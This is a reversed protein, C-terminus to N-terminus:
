VRRLRSRLAVIGFIGLVLSLLVLGSRGLVPVELVSTGGGLVCEVGVDDVDAGAVTGAGNTVTCTQVPNDPQAGVTVAYTGGDAVPTVFTFPGDAAVSLDDGGHSTIRPKGPASEDM